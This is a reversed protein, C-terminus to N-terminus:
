YNTAFEWSVSLQLAGSLQLPSCDTWYAQAEQKALLVLRGM